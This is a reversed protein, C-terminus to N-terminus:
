PVTKWEKEKQSDWVKSFINKCDGRSSKTFIESYNDGCWDMIEKITGGRAPIKWRDHGLVEIAEIIIDIKTQELDPKIKDLIKIKSPDCDTERFRWYKAMEEFCVAYRMEMYGEEVSGMPWYFCDGILLEAQSRADQVPTSGKGKSDLLYPKLAGCMILEFFRQDNNYGLREQAEKYTLYM